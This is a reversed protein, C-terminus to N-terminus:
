FLYGLALNFQDVANGADNDLDQYDAKLILQPLPKYALGLTLVDRNRAPDRLFGAPVESQTDFSEFRAYPILAQRSSRHALLDYGLQLYYGEFTEGISAAGTLGLAQNLRASDDIEGRAGLARLEFGRYKWELHFDFLSTRAGIARGSSDELGQGSDGLYFSVGALLGPTGTYDLRGTWALDEARSESGSQRGGRIGSSSFGSADLGAVVYSRYTFGGVDGFIGVGNERWTSPIIQREVEPRGVGLFLPPEHLENIFGMPVLLLGGRVNLAPKWLYDIYAFELSVSGEKETSGHEFEIESNFLWRDNFKYGFYLVARLADFQDSAASPSGDDATGDLGQYVIEGYGGLTVGQEAQYVKSAAVGLGHESQEAPRFISAGVKEKELEGALIDIRREIEAFRADADAPAAAEPPKTAAADAEKMRAIEQRIAALERELQEIRQSESAQARAPPAVAILGIGLAMALAALIIRNTPVM